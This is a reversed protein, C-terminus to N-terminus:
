AASQDKGSALFLLGSMESRGGTEDTQNCLQWRRLAGVAAVFNYKREARFALLFCDRGRCKGAAAPM